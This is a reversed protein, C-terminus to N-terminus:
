EDATAGMEARAVGGEKRDRRTYRSQVTHVCLRVSQGEAAPQRQPDRAPKAVPHNTLTQPGSPIIGWPTGPCVPLPVGQTPLCSRAWSPAPDLPLTVPSLVPGRAGGQSGMSPPPGDSVSSLWRPAPLWALPGPHEWPSVSTVPELRQLGEADSRVSHHTLKREKRKFDELKLLQHFSVGCCPM